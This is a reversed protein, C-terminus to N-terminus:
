AMLFLLIGTLSMYALVLITISLQGAIADASAGLPLTPHKFARDPSHWKDIGLRKSMEALIAPELANGWSAAEGADTRPDEGNIAKVAYELVDNPKSWKSHGMLGPLQSCSLMRDDTLKPM